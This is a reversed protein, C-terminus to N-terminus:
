RVVVSHKLSIGFDYMSVVIFLDIFYLLLIVLLPAFDIGGYVTRIYKRVPSILPETSAVLFRVIPNYP